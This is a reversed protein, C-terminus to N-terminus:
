KGSRIKAFYIEAEQIVKERQEETMDRLQKRMWDAMLTAAQRTERLEHYSPLGDELENSLRDLTKQEDESLDVKRALQRYTQFKRKTERDRATVMGFPEDTLIQDARWGKYSSLIQHIQLKGDTRSLHFVEGEEANAVILPSHTTAIVQVNPFVDRLLFMLESQWEPHLHTDVEDILVLAGGSEPKELDPYVEYLREFLTGAWSILSGTGQSVVEIPVIHEGARVKIERTDRDISHLRLQMSPIIRDLLAFFNRLLRRASKANPGTGSAQYDINVVWQKLSNLRNDTERNILPLVDHASPKAEASGSSPGLPLEQGIARLAPFGIVLWNKKDRSAGDSTIEIRGGMKEQFEITHRSGGVLLEIRGWDAGAKLLDKARTAELSDGCLAAAIARLVITKGMGNGGLLISWRPMPNLDLSEFPGINRLSIKELAPWGSLREVDREPLVAAEAEPTWDRAPSRRTELEGLVHTSEISLIRWDAVIVIFNKRSFEDAFRKLALQEPGSGGVANLLFVFGGWDLLVRALEPDSIGGMGVLKAIAGLKIDDNGRGYFKLDLLIPIARRLALGDVYGSLLHRGFVLLYRDAVSSEGVFLLVRHEVLEKTAKQLDLSAPSEAFPKSSSDLVPSQLDAVKKWGSLEGSSLLERTYRRLLYRRTGGFSLAVTIAWLSGLQRVAPFMLLAMCPEWWPALGIISLALLWWLIPALSIFWWKPVVLVSRPAHRLTNGYADRSMLHLDTFGSPMTRELSMVPTFNGQRVESEFRMSDTELIAEFGGGMQGDYPDRGGSNYHAQQIRVVQGLLVEQGLLSHTTSSIWIDVDEDFRYAGTEGWLWTHGAVTGIGKTNLGQATEPIPVFSGNLRRYARNTSGLWIQDGLVKIAKVPEELSEVPVRLPIGGALRLVGTTTAFWAEGDVEAVSIVEYGQLGEVLTPQGSDLRLCPGFRGYATNTVLWISGAAKVIESVETPEDFALWPSSLDDLRYANSRTGAWVQGDIISVDHIWGKLISTATDGEIRFLGRRTGLWVVDGEARIVTVPLEGVTDRLIPFPRDGEVRFVGEMSGLWVQGGVDAIAAVPVDKLVPTPSSGDVRYAGSEM